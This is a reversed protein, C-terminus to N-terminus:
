PPGLVATECVEKEENIIAVDAGHGVDDQGVTIVRDGEGLGTLVEVYNGEKFGLTIKTKFARTEIDFAANKIESVLDDHDNYFSVKEFEKSTNGSLTEIAEITINSISEDEHRRSIDVINGSLPLGGRKQKCVASDGLALSKIVDSNVSLVVFDKVIFVEDA